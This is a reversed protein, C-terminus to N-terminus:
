PTTASGTTVPTRNHQRRETDCAAVALAVFAALARIPEDTKFGPQAEASFHGAKDSTANVVGWPQERGAVKIPVAVMSVYRDNDYERVLDRPGFVAQLGEARVDPLVIERGSTYAIGAIGVGEPWKRAEDLKCDIARKQAICQLEIRDSSTLQVAKYVGITWRDAQGFGAAISIARASLDFMAKVIGDIGGVSGVSAQEIAGRMTLTLQYTEILREFADNFEDLDGAQTELEQAQDMAQQAVAIANSADHETALVFIGGLMVGLTAAIGIMQSATPSGGTPWTWFQAAGAIAACGILLVFKVLRSARSVSNGHARRASALERRISTLDIM